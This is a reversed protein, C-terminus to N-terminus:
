CWSCLRYREIKRWDRLVNFIPDGPVLPRDKRGAFRPTRSALALAMFIQMSSISASGDDELACKRVGSPRNSTKYPYRHWSAIPTKSSHFHSTWLYSSHLRNIIFPSIQRKAQSTPLALSGPIIYKGLLHPPLYVAWFPLGHDETWVIKLYINPQMEHPNRTSPLSRMPLFPGSFSTNLEKKAFWQPLQTM